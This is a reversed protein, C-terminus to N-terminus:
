VIIFTDGRDYGLLGIRSLLELADTQLIELEALYKQRCGISFQELVEKDIDIGINKEAQRKYRMVAGGGLFPEIYIRHPPIQNIITQYVGEQAKGGFYTL